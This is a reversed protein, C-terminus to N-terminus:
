RTMTSWSNPQSLALNPAADLNVASLTTGCAWLGTGTTFSCGTTQASGNGNETISGSVLLNATWTGASNVFTSGQLVNVNGPGWLTSGMFVLGWFANNGGAVYVSGLEISGSYTALKGHCITDGDIIKVSTLGRLLTSGLVGGGYVINSAPKVDLTGVISSGVTYTTGAIITTPLGNLTNANLSGQVVAMSLINAGTNGVLAYSGFAPSPDSITVWQVQGVSVFPAATVASGDPTWEKLNALPATFTAYTDSSAWGNDEALAPVGIASLNLVTGPIPQQMTATSGSMSDIIAYSSRNIDQVIMNKLTGAPMGALQLLTGGGTTIAKPTVTLGTISAQVTQLTGIFQASSGEALRPRFWIYDSGLTQPADLTFKTKQPLYPDLAGLRHVAIEGWTACAASGCSTCANTDNGLTPNVCWAPVTWAAPIIPSSSSAAMLVPPRKVKTGCAWTGDLRTCAAVAIQAPTRWESPHLPGPPLVVVGLIPSELAGPPGGPALAEGTFRDYLRTEATDVVATDSATDAATSNQPNCGLVLALVLPPGLHAVLPKRM